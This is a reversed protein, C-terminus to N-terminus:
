ALSSSVPPSNASPEPCTTNPRRTAYGPIADGRFAPVVDTHDGETEPPGDVTM